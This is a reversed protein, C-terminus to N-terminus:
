VSPEETKESQTYIRPVRSSVLCLCEYEITSARRALESLESPHNGFLTVTDGLAVEHGTVDIMCQDMCIRGVIPARFSGHKGEVTVLAGSYARLLGDAYGIPLTAIRRPTDACFTGGYGVCEGAPLPHLHVVSTCLRMVPRLSPLDSATPSVGYLLIGPRVGDFYADPTLLSAASNCTHHFPIKVGRTEIEARLRRYRAAQRATAEARDAPAHSATPSTERNQESLPAIEDARAYHTLMGELSLHPLRAIRLIADASALIEEEGYAAFGIRHMGTDVAVHTRLTVGAATAADNLARAYDESLLNQILDFHAL